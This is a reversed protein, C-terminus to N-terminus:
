IGGVQIMIKRFFESEQSDDVNDRLLRLVSRVQRRPLSKLLRIGEANVRKVYDKNFTEVTPNFLCLMLASCIANEINKSGSFEKELPELRKRDAVMMEAELNKQKDTVSIFKPTGPIDGVRALMLRMRETLQFEPVEKKGTKCRYEAFVLTSYQAFSEPERKLYQILQLAKKQQGLEELAVTVRDIWKRQYLMTMYLNECGKLAPPVLLAEEVSKMVNPIKSRYASHFAAAVEPTGIKKLVVFHPSTDIDQSIAIGISRNIYPIVRKGASPLLQVAAKRSTDNFDLMNLAEAYVLYVDDGSEPKFLTKMAAITAVDARLFIDYNWKKGFYIIATNLEGPEKLWTLKSRVLKLDTKGAILVIEATNRPEGPLVINAARKKPRSELPRQLIIRWGDKAFPDKVTESLPKISDVKWAVTQREIQQRVNSIVDPVKAAYLSTASFLFFYFLFKM